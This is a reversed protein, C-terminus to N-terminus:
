LVKQMQLSNGAQKSTHWGNRDYVSIATQNSAKVSLSIMEVGDRRALREFHELLLSGLRRGRFEEDVGIVVLGWNPRFSAQLGADVPTERRRLGMRILINRAIGAFKKVNDKHLILWPRRLYARVFDWFAYQSISTFAGPKGSEHVKIGGCYGVVRGEDELHFLVGRDSVVYWELMKQVARPGLKNVMAKPFASAHCRAVRSLDETTTLVPDNM